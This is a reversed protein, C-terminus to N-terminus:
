KKPFDCYAGTINESSISAWDETEFVLRCIGCTPLDMFANGSLVSSLESFDPNHGLLMLNMMLPDQEAIVEKIISVGSGYLRPEIDLKSFGIDFIKIFITATHLARIAPSCIMLDPLIMEIKIRRAMDYADRIGRLKLHRDTDSVDEYDWSSKAHRVITLIRESSM